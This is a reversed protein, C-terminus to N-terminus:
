TQLREQASRAVGVFLIAMVSGVQCLCMTNGLLGKAKRMDLSDMDRLWDMDPLAHETSDDAFFRPIGQAAMLEQMVFLRDGRLSYIQSNRLITPMVRSLSGFSVTQTADVCFDFDPHGDDVVKERFQEM